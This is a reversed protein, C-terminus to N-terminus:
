YFADKLHLIKVSAASKLIAIIDFRFDGPWGHYEVYHEAARVIAEQQSPSVFSEPPGYAQSSRTKVEVFILLEGQQCIIDIESRKYRYNQQKISFGQKKLFGCALQEGKKGLSQM